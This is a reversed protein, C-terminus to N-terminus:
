RLECIVLENDVDIFCDDFQRGERGPTPCFSNGVEVNTEERNGEELGIFSPIRYCVFGPSQRNFSKEVHDEGAIRLHEGWRAEIPIRKRVNLTRWKEELSVLLRLRQASSRPYGNMPGDSKSHLALTVIYRLESSNTVLQNWTTCVKLTFLSTPNYM